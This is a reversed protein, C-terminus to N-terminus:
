FVYGCEEIEDAFFEGVYAAAERTFMERYHRGNREKGANRRDLPPCDLGRQRLAAGLEGELNAYEIVADADDKFFWLQKGDGGRIWRSKAVFDKVHALSWPPSVPYPKVFMWSAVADWHNRIVTFVFWRDRSSRIEDTLPGHHDGPPRKHFGLQKLAAGVANSATRPHALFVM